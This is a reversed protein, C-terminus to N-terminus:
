KRMSSAKNDFYKDVDTVPVSETKLGIITFDFNNDQLTIMEDRTLVRTGSFSAGTFDPRIKSIKHINMRANDLDVNIIKGNKLEVDVFYEALYNKQLIFNINMKNSSTIQYATDYRNTLELAFSDLVLGSKVTNHSEDILKDRDYRCQFLAICFMLALFQYSINLNKKM